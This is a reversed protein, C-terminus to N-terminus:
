GPLGVTCVWASPDLHRAAAQEVTVLDLGTLQQELWDARDFPLGYLSSQAQLVAVQRATERRFPASGLLYMRAEEFETTSIGDGLLKAVEEGVANRAREINAPATGLYVVFRGPSLGAGSATAVHTAYALGEAERVREPIRGALGPGSGLVVAAVELAVRDPDTVPVTLKGLLLHAQDSEPLDVQQEPDGGLPVAPMNLDRAEGELHGDMRGETEFLAELVPEVEAPDIDGAVSVVCGRALSHRHFDACDQASLSEISERSGQLPRSWPHPTYLQEQFAWGALVEPQEALSALEAVTQRAVWGCRDEPFSSELVLEAAWDVAQRWDEALADIAVGIVEPGGFASIDMGLAESESAIRDWTRRETGEALM